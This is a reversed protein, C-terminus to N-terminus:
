SKGPPADEPLDDNLQRNVEGWFAALDIELEPLMPSAYRDDRQPQVEFRGNRNVLFDFQQERPDVIWYEAVGFEAYLALKDVRDRRANSGSIIEIALDPPGTLHRQIVRRREKRVYVLDPQVISHDALEVDFPAPAMRGGTKIAIDLLWKTLLAVVTQHAYNPSPSVVLRGYILEVPEGEPLAFYDVARHPGLRSVPTFGPLVDFHPTGISMADM